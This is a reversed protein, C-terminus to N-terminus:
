GMNDQSGDNSQTPYITRPKHCFSPIETKILVAGAALSNDFMVKIVKRKRCVLFVKQSTLSYLSIIFSLSSVATILILEVYGPAYGIVQFM